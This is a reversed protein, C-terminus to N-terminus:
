ANAAKISQLAFQCVEEDTNLRRLSAVFQEPSYWDGDSRDYEEVWYKAREPTLRPDNM